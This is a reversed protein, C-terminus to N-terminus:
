RSHNFVNRHHCKDCYVRGSKIKTEIKMEIGGVVAGEPQTNCSSFKIMTAPTAPPSTMRMASITIVAATTATLRLIDPLVFVKESM